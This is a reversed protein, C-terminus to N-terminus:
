AKNTEVAELKRGVRHGLRALAEAIDTSRWRNVGGLKLPTPLEGRNWMRQITRRDVQLMQVLDDITMLPELYVMNPDDKFQEKFAKLKEILEKM